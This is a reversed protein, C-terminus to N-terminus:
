KRLNRVTKIATQYSTLIGTILAYPLKSLCWFGINYVRQHRFKIIQNLRLPHQLLKKIESPPVQPRILKRKDIIVAATSMCLNMVWTTVAEFYPKDALKELHEKCYNRTCLHGEIEKLPIENRPQYNSLSGSRRFYSYTVEPLLVCSNVLPTLDFHFLLDEWVAAPQFQMQHQRLFSLRYLVNWVFMPMSKKLSGYRLTGLEDPQTLCRTPLVHLSGQRQDEWVEQHSSFVVQAQQQEMARHLLEICNHTMWDDSDLYFLYEGQAEQLATNRAAAVGRNKDHQVIRIAKGRAHNQQLSRIIEMSRDTGRDDIILIEIHSYTQNLASEMSREVYAEANFLPMAITVQHM